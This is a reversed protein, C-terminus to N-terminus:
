LSVSLVSAPGDSARRIRKRAKRNGLDFETGGFRSREQETSNDKVGLLKVLGKACIWLFHHRFRAIVSTATLEGM